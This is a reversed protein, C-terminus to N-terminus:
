FKQGETKKCKYDGARMLFVEGKNSWTSFYYMESTRRSIRFKDKFFINAKKDLAESVCSIEDDNVNCLCKSGSIDADGSNFCGQALFRTATPVARTVPNFDVVVSSPFKDEEGKDKGNLIKVSTLVGDCQLHTISASGLSLPVIFFNLVLFLIRSIKM